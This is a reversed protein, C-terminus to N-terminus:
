KDYTFEFNLDMCTYNQSYYTFCAVVCSVVQSNIQHVDQIVYNTNYYM